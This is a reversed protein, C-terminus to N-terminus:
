DEGVPVGGYEAFWTQLYLQTRLMNSPTSTTGHYENLIPILKTPVGRIKLAAFFEEAQAIPTRLDKVGTMLLTPTEVNQVHMIPSHELWNTPDEWFFPRFRTNVWYALDVQGSFSVWNIVPCLAAAASFRNTQTVVWSTLIGGGSCGTVYMKEPDVYGRELVADVGNMLDEFDRRGPYANDIANAFANRYGTSGRPNTYLVVYGKSAFEQFRFQFNVGYMAHPGGHISLVLPYTKSEDFNPPKVIWGQVRMGDSSDYWIEEVRGLKVDKLIDGNLDTLVRVNGRQLGISAINPTQTPTSLVGAAVSGGLSTFALRQTGETIQRLGGSLDATYLHTAGEADMSLYLARGNPAWELATLDAHLDEILIRDGSGDANMVRLHQPAFNADVRPGGTYAIRRGDPSLRALRWEGADANLKQLEGNATDVRLIDAHIPGAEAATDTAGTVIIADGGPTWQPEGPARIGSSFTGVDWVGQTIRRPTGGEDPVVFLQNHGPKPGIRDMRYHLRDIVVPDDTWTAGAPKGPLTIKLSPEYPVEAVFAIHEGDRSWSFSKPAHVGHTVQSVAGESDMWRVFLQKRGGEDSAIYAIRDGSPSWQVRAGDVLFRHREGSASMTWLEADWRDELKNVRRRTYIITRGDPSIEPNAAREWNLWDELRLTREEAGATVPLGSSVALALFSASMMRLRSM